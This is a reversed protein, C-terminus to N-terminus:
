STQVRTNMENFALALEQVEHLGSPKILEIEISPMRRSTAVVKQRPDGIWHALWFAVLLSTLLAIITNGIHISVGAQTPPETRRLIAKVRAVLERPNFPKTMYDDAGLSLGLIKDIDEDRTTLMLTATPNGEARLRQCVEFGDLRPLMVDLVILAPKLCAVSELATVGDGATAVRYNERELYM